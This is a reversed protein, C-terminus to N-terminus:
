PPCWKREELYIHWRELDLCHHKKAARVLSLLRKKRNSLRESIYISTASHASVDTLDDLCLHRGRDKLMILNFSKVCKLFYNRIAQLSFKVIISRPVPRDQGEKSPPPLPGRFIGIPKHDNEDHTFSTVELLKNIIEM